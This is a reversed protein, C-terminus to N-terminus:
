SMKQRLLDLKIDAFGDKNKKMALQPLHLRSFTDILKNYEDVKVPLFTRLVFLYKVFYNGLNIATKYAKDEVQGNNRLDSLLELFLPESQENWYKKAEPFQKM